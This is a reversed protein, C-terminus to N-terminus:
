ISAYKVVEKNKLITKAVRIKTCEICCCKEIDYMVAYKEIGSIDFGKIKM